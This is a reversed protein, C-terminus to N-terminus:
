QEAEAHHQCSMFEPRMATPALGLLLVFLGAAIGVLISRIILNKM